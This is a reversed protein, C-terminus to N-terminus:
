FSDYGDTGFAPLLESQPADIGSTCGRPSYESSYQVLPSIDNGNVEVLFILNVILIEFCMRSKLVLLDDVIRRGYTGSGGFKM